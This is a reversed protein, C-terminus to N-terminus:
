LGSIVSRSRYNTVMKM